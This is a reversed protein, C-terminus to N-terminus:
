ASRSGLKARTMLYEGTEFSSDNAVDVLVLGGMERLVARARRTEWARIESRKMKRAPSDRRWSSLRGKRMKMLAFSTMAMGSAVRAM